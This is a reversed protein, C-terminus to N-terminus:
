EEDDQKKRRQMLLSLPSPGASHSALVWNVSSASVTEGLLAEVATHVHAVRIPGAQDAMVGSNSAFSVAHQEHPDGRRGHVTARDRCEAAQDGLARLPPRACRRSRVPLSRWHQPSDRTPLSKKAIVLGSPVLSERTSHRRVEHSVCPASTM